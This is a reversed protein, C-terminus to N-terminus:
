IVLMVIVTSMLNNILHTVISAEIRKTKYYVLGFFFGMVIYTLLNFPNFNNILSNTSFHSLGFLISSIFLGTKAYDKFIHGMILKRYFFEEVVPAIIVTAIFTLIPFSVTLKNITDQNESNAAYSFEEGILSIGMNSLIILITIMTGIGIDKLKFQSWKFPAEKITKNYLFALVGFILIPTVTVFIVTFSAADEMQINPNFWKLLSVSSTPIMVNLFAYALLLSSAIFWENNVSTKPHSSSEKREIHLKSEM